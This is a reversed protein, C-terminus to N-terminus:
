EPQGDWGALRAFLWWAAYAKMNANLPQSHASSCEFWDVNLDHSNQWETAWNGDLDGDDYPPANDYDCADNVRKDGYYNGDPDYIEIDYFDYLILENDICYQRIYRNWYHVAGSEGTGNSHATMYVFQVEPYDERLQDMANLYNTIDNENTYLWCWSWIVVNCDSDYDPTGSSYDGATDCDWGLYERTAYVWDPYYGLDSVDSFFDDLDLAGGTGGENFDYLGPTGGNLEKFAPLETMGEVLQQGHSTHDYAIHLTNKAAIIASEPIQDLRVMNVISHDAIIAGASSNKGGTLYCSYLFMM